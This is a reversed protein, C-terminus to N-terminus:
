ENKAINYTYNICFLDAKSIKEKSPNFSLTVDAKLIKENLEDFADWIEKPIDTYDHDDAILDEYIEAPDLPYIKQPKTLVLMLDDADEIDNDLMYDIIYDLDQFYDNTARSYIMDYGNWKGESLGDYSKRTAKDACPDCWSNKPFINGCKCKKHTAGDYRAADELDGYFHKNRSIWGTVTGLYAAEDSDVFIVQNKQTQEKMM